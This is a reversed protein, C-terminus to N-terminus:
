NLEELKIITASASLEQLEIEIFLKGNEIKVNM